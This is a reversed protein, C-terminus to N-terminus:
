AGRYDGSPWEHVQAPLLIVFHWRIPREVGDFGGAAVFDDGQLGLAQAPAQTMRVLVDLVDASFEIGGVDLGAVKFLEGVQGSKGEGGLLIQAVGIREAHERYGFVLNDSDM